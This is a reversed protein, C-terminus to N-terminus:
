RGCRGPSIGAIRDASPSPSPFRHRGRHPATPGAEYVVRVPSPLSGAWALTGGYGPTMTRRSFEGTEADIAAAVVSRARVDLGVSTREIM